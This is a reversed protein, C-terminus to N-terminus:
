IGRRYRILEGAGGEILNFGFGGNRLRYDYNLHLRKVPDGHASAPPNNMWAQHTLLWAKPSSASDLTRNIYSGSYNYVALIGVEGAALGGNVTIGYRSTGAIRKTAYLFADIHRVQAVWENPGVDVVRGDNRILRGSGDYDGSGNTKGIFRENSTWSKFESGLEFEKTAENATRSVGALRAVANEIVQTGMVSRFEAQSMWPKFTGTTVAAGNDKREITGPAIVADFREPYLNENKTVDAPWDPRASDSVRTVKSLDTVEVGKDDYYKGDKRTLESSVITGDKDALFYRSDSNLNFQSRMFIQGQRDRQPLVENADPASGGRDKAYTWDGVVINSRAALRLESTNPENQISAIAQADNTLPWTGPATKYVIDGAVYINRGAYIAGKGEVYGKIVVDGKVLVDGNLKIPNDFTGVLILNGDVSSATEGSPLTAGNAQFTTPDAPALDTAYKGGHPVVWVGANGADSPLGTTAVFNGSGDQGAWISGQVTSEAAAVDVPPFDPKGDGDSDVPLKPGTYKTNIAGSVVTGNLTPAMDNTINTASPNGPVPGVYVDGNIFSHNGSNSGSGGESGWGPRFFGISGVDGTITMHCFMCDTKETLMALDFIPNNGWNVRYRVSKSVRADRADVGVDTTRAEFEAWNQGPPGVLVVRAQVGPLAPYTIPAACGPAAVLDLRPPAPSDTPAAPDRLHNNFWAAPMLRTIEWHNTLDLRLLEAAAECRYTDVSASSEISTMTRGHQVIGAILLAGFGLVAGIIVVLVLTSGRDNENRRWLARNM